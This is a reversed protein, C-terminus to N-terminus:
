PALEPYGFEELAEVLENGELEQVLARGNKALRVVRAMGHGSTSLDNYSGCWGHLMPQRSQNTYPPTDRLEYRTWGNLTHSKEVLFGIQGATLTEDPGIWLTTM